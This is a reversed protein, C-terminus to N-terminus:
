HSTKALFADLMDLIIQQKTRPLKRMREIRKEFNNAPGRKTQPGTKVGVLEDMSVQLGQALRPLMDVQIRARGTEWQAYTQQAVGLQDAIEQQTCNQAKRAAAIRSGLAQFFPADQSNM